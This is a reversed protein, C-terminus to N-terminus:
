VPLNDYDDSVPLIFLPELGWTPLELEAEPEDHCRFFELRSARNRPLWQSKHGQIEGVTKTGMFAAIRVPEDLPIGSRIASMFLQHDEDTWYIRPRRRAPKPKRLISITTVRAM